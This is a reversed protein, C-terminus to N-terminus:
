NIITYISNMSRNKIILRFQVINIYFVTGVFRRCDTFRGTRDILLGPFWSASLAYKGNGSGARGNASSLGHWLGLWLRTWGGGLGLVLQPWLGQGLHGGLWPSCWTRVRDGVM